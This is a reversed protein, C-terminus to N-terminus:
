RITVFDNHNYLVLTLNERARQAPDASPPAASKPGGATQTLKGPESLLQAQSALFTRCEAL